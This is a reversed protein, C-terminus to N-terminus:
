HCGNNSGLLNFFGPIQTFFAIIQAGARYQPNSLLQVAGSPSPVVPSVFNSVATQGVINSNIAGVRNCLDQNCAQLSSNHGAAFNGGFSNGTADYCQDHHMCSDDTSDQPTGSGGSGCWGGYTWPGHVPTTQPLLPGQRPTTARRPNKGSPRAAQLRTKGSAGRCRAPVGRYATKRGSPYLVRPLNQVICAMDVTHSARCHMMLPKVM